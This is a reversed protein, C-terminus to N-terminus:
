AMYDEIDKGQYIWQQIKNPHFLYEILEKRLQANAEKIEQLEYEYTMTSTPNFPQGPTNHWTTKELGYAPYCGTAYDARLEERTCEAAYKFGAKRFARHLFWCVVINEADMPEKLTDLLTTFEGQYRYYEVNVIMPGYPKFAEAIQEAIHMPDEEDLLSDIGNGLTLMPEQCRDTMMQQIDDASYTVNGVTFGSKSNM